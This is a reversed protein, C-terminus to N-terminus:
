HEALFPLLHELLAQPQEEPIFHGSGEVIGGRVNEAVRALSERVLDRRGFAESGGLALVPMQLKGAAILKQNNVIDEPIARYLSFGARMAGPQSYMRAYEQKAEEPIAGKHATFNELFWRVYIDERGHVLAEPLDATRHFAHHWRGQSTSFVDTGDGPITVDLITLTSVAERHHAALAYAVPGGWDHGVVHFRQLGLHESMLAWVDAAMTSKDYGQLPRSSDGFGRLDPAIVRYNQALAPMIAQWEFWTQPFGHILVIPEGEGACVFHMNVEPLAAYHHEFEFSM